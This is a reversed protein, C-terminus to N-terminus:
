LASERGGPNTLDQNWKSHLAPGEEWPRIAPLEGSRWNAAGGFNV